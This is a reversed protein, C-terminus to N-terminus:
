PPMAGGSAVRRPMSLFYSEDIQINSIIRSEVNRNSLIEIVETKSENLKLFGCTMWHKLHQWFTRIKNKIMNASSDRDFSFYCKMDDAYAYWFQMLMHVGSWAAVFQLCPYVAHM